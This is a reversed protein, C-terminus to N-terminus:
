ALETSPRGHVHSGGCWRYESNLMRSTHCTSRAAFNRTWVMTGPVVAEGGGNPGGINFAIIQRGVTM